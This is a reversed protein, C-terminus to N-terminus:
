ARSGDGLVAKPLNEGIPPRIVGRETIIASILRAPTLDFAPNFARAGKPAVQRGWFSLVESEPREEVPIGSMDPISLDFTSTPAAVYFPIGHLQALCALTYTGIKNAVDGNRAIRDAGVIVCDVGGKSILYGAASDVLITVNIGDQMLEWATLRAGQLYPRTEDAYVMSIRGQEWASRIVGLATGYGGTALAGANCHTLVRSGPALLAAGHAGIRRNMDVDEQEIARAEAEAATHAEQLLEPDTTDGATRGIAVTGGVRDIRALTKRLVREVAWRLNVATPRAATLVLAAEELLARAQGVSAGTKWAHRATSAIGYGGAIGIVPAGRVVMDRIAASIERFDRCAVYEVREPLYRQDLLVLQGDEWKVAHVM